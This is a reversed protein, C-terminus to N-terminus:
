RVGRNNILEFYCKMTAKIDVMADHAGKLGEKFLFSYLESLKPWKYGYKGPLKCLETSKKMTCFSARNELNYVADEMNNRAFLNSVMKLDFTINHAVVLDAKSLYNDFLVALFTESIGYRDTIKTSIQHVKEAGPHINRENSAILFCDQNMIYQDNTLIMGIQVVWAQDSHNAPLKKSPFGSTETDFFLINM